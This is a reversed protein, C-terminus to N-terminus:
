KVEVICGTPCKEIAKNWDKREKLKEYNVRALNERLEFGGEPTVKACIGCAICGVTCIKRVVAGKDKSSCAVLVIGREKNFVELSIINRPCAEACKGCATCKDTIIEPKGGRMVIAGFPCAKVCDGYGLCGFSCEMDGGNLLEVAQCGGIGLYKAKRKRQPERVGCHIVALKKELQVAKVGLITAIKQSAEEGGVPCIIGGGKNIAAEAFAHCSAVGCAGCNAGPLIEAIKNIRADEKIKMKKDVAALVVAFFAGLGVMSLISILVLKM